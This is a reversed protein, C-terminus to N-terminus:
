DNSEKFLNSEKDSMNREDFVYEIHMDLKDLYSRLALAREKYLEALAWSRQSLSITGYIIRENNVVDENEFANSAKIAAVVDGENEAFDLYYEYSKKISDKIDKHGSELLKNYAHGMEAKWCEKYFNAYVRLSLTSNNTFEHTRFFEDIPNHKESSSDNNVLENKALYNKSGKINDESPNILEEAMNTKEDNKEKVQGGVQINWLSYVNFGISIVLLIVLIPYTKEKM